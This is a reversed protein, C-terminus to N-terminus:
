SRKSLAPSISSSAFSGPGIACQFQVITGPQGRDIRDASVIARKVARGGPDSARDAIREVEVATVIVDVGTGEIHGAATDRHHAPKVGLDDGGIIPTDDRLGVAGVLSVGPPLHAAGIGTGIAM